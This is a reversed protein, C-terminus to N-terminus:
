FTIFYLLTSPPHPLFVALMIRTSPCELWWLTGRGSLFIQLCVIVIFLLTNYCCRSDLPVFEILHLILPFARDSFSHTRLTPHFYHNWQLSCVKWNSEVFFAMIINFMWKNNWLWRPSETKERSEIYSEDCAQFTNICCGHQFILLKYIEM